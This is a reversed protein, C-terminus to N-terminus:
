YRYIYLLFFHAQSLFPKIHYKTIRGTLFVIRPAGPQSLWHLVCSKIEPNHTLAGRQTYLNSLFLIKFPRM